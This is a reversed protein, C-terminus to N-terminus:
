HQSIKYNVQNFLLNARIKTFCKIVNKIILKCNIYLFYVEFHNSNKANFWQVMLLYAYPVLMSLPIM